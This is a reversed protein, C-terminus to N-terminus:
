INASFGSGSSSSITGGTGHYLDKLYNAPAWKANYTRIANEMAVSNDQASKSLNYNNTANNDGSELGYRQASAQAAATRLQANYNDKQDNEDQMVLGSSWIGRKAANQNIGEMALKQQKEMPTTMATMINRELADYDGNSLRQAEGPSSVAPAEYDAVKLVNSTRAAVYNPNEIWKGPLTQSEGFPTKSVIPPQYIYRDGQAPNNVTEFAGPTAEAINNLSSRFLDTREAASLPKSNSDSSQGSGGM